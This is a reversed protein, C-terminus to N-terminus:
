KLESWAMIGILDLELTWLKSKIRAYFHEKGSRITKSDHFRLIPISLM